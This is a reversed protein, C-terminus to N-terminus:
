RIRGGPWSNEALDRALVANGHMDVILDDNRVASRREFFYSNGTLRVFNDTLFLMRRIELHGSSGLILPLPIPAEGGALHGFSLVRTVQLSTRQPLERWFHHAGIRDGSLDIGLFEGEQSAGVVCREISPTLFTWLDDAIKDAWRHWFLALNRKRSPDRYPGASREWHFARVRPSIALTGGEERVRLALDLDDYGSNYSTDFGKTARLVDRRMASFGLALSQVAFPEDLLADPRANLFAHRAVLHHFTLGAHNVGGSHPYLLVGSVISLDACQEFPALLEVMWPGHFILDSDLRVVYDGECRDIGENCSIGDGHPRDHTLVNVDFRQALESYWRQIVAKADSSCGDDVLVLQVGKPLTEFLGSLFLDLVDNRELIPVVISVSTGREGVKPRAGSQGHLM